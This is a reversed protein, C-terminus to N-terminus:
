VQHPAFGSVHAGMFVARAFYTPTEDQHVAVLAGIDFALQVGSAIADDTLFTIGELALGDGVWDEALDFNVGAPINQQPRLMLYTEYNRFDGQKLSSLMAIYTEKQQSWNHIQDLGAGVFDSAHDFGPFPEAVLQVVGWAVSTSGWFVSKLRGEQADDVVEKASVVMDGVTYWWSLADGTIPKAGIASGKVDLALKGTNLTATMLERSFQDSVEQWTYLRMTRQEKEGLLGKQEALALAVLEDPFVNRIKWRGDHWVMWFFTGGEQEDSVGNVTVTVEHQCRVMSMTREADYGTALHTFSFGSLTARQAIVDAAARSEAVENDTMLHLASEDLMGQTDGAAQAELYRKAVTEPSDGTADPVTDSSIPVGMVICMGAEGSDTNCSWTASDSDVVTYTGAPIEWEPLCTWYANPVGGQGARGTCAWTGVLAASSDYLSITGAAAMGTGGNWHYTEISTVRYRQTTTFQTDVSSGNHVSSPNHNNFIVEEAADDGSGTSSNANAANANGSTASTSCGTIVFSSCIGFLIAAVLDLSVRTSM